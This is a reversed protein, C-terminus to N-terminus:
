LVSDLSQKILCQKIVRQEGRTFKVNSKSIM